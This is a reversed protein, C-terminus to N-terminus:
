TCNSPKLYSAKAPVGVVPEKLILGQSLLWAYHIRANSDKNQYSDVQLPPTRLLTHWREKLVVPQEQEWLGLDEEQVVAGAPSHLYASQIVGAGVTQVATELFRLGTKLM